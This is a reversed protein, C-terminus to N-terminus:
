RTSTSGGAGRGRACVCTAGAAGLIECVTRINPWYPSILVMEDGRDLLCQGAIMVSLMTSGPVTIRDPDLDLGYLRTHYRRIAERLPAHGRSYSYFTRGADLARKAASGIFEPTVLDSEGFWLPIVEPDDLAGIAVKGIGSM